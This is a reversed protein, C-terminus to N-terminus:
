PLQTAYGRLCDPNRNLEGRESIMETLAHLGTHYGASGDPICQFEFTCRILEGSRENVVYDEGEPDAKYEVLGENCPFFKGNKTTVFVINAGCKCKKM